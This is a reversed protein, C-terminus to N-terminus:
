VEIGLDRQHLLAKLRRAVRGRGEHRVGEQQVPVSEMAAEVAEVAMEDPTLPM